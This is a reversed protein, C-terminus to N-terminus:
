TMLIIKLVNITMSETPVFVGCAVPQAGRFIVYPFPNIVLKIKGKAFHKQIKM